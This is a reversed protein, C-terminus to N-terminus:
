SHLQDSFGGIESANLLVVANSNAVEHASKTFSPTAIVCAKNAAYHLKGATVEQVAKIGVPKQFRKCQIAVTVGDKEALIDVGQDGSSKTLRTTWGQSSIKEACWNEFAVPDSPPNLADQSITGKILSLIENGAFNVLEVPSKEYIEPFFNQCFEDVEEAFPGPDHDGYKDYGANWARLGLRKMVVAKESIKDRIAQQEWSSIESQSPNSNIKFQSSHPSPESNYLAYVMVILVLIIPVIIEEVKTM